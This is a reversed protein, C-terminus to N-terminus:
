ANQDTMDQNLSPVMPNPNTMNQTIKRNDSNPSMIHRQLHLSEKGIDMLIEGLLGINKWYKRNLSNTDSLSVGTGWVNDHSAEVLTQKETSQLLLLLATNQHFKAKIGPYCMEKAIENWERVEKPKKLKYGLRKADLASEASIIKNALREDGYHKAKESQIFHESTKYQINNVTFPSPHFNSFPNLEGFFAYTTNDSKSSVHFGNLDSPLEGISNVTYRKGKLTLTDGELKCLNKYDKHKRAVKLIPYLIKRNKLTEHDYDYDVYVGDKLQKKNDMIRAVDLNCAFKVCIPRNREHSYRGIRKANVINIEKAKELREKKNGSMISAIAQYIKEYTIFTTEWPGETLGSFILNNEKMSREMNRVKMKLDENEKLIHECHTKLIKNDDELRKLAQPPVSTTRKKVLNDISLQLSSLKTEISQDLDASLESRLTNKLLILEPSLIIPNEEEEEEEDSTSVDEASDRESLRKEENEDTLNGKMNSNSNLRKAQPKTASPPSRKKASLPTSANMDKKNEHKFFNKISNISDTEMEKSRKRCKKNQKPTKKPDNKDDSNNKQTELEM